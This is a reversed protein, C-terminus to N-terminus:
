LSIGGVCMLFEDVVKSPKYNEAKLLCNGKMKILYDKHSMIYVLLSVLEDYNGFEYGCGVSGEEILDHYNEWRSSIVPIGSAYADLITGPIGETYFKTPFVLAFYNKLVDTSENFAVCGCYRIYEPLSKRIEDFRRQYSKDIQGYLDLSYINRKFRNNIEIVATIIDEVGKEEMIRSFTCLKYPEIFSYVLEEKKLIRLDKCNPLVTINNFGNRELSVKMTSTEVYIRDFQLLCKKIFKNENLYNVLWGGIVIYHLKTNFFRKWMILLPAFFKLGNAAPLIVINKCIKMNYGVLFFLKILRYKGGYTDIQIVEDNGLRNILEKTITKTKVTQGDLFNKGAGFHGVVCIKKKRKM